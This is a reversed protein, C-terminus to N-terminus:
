VIRSRLELHGEISIDVVDGPKLYLEDANPQAFATGAASGTAFIDGPELPMYRSFHEIIDPIKNIQDRTNFRHRQQGNV